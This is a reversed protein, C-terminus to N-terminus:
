PAAAGSVPPEPRNALRRDFVFPGAPLVSAALAGAAWTWHWRVRATTEAIAVLYLVWLGGHAAGVYFVPEPIGAAYKLPMAVLVLVLFSVGEVFGVLRLRGVPTTVM